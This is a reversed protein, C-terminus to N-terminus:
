SHSPGGQPTRRPLWGLLCEKRQEMHYRPRRDLFNLCIQVGQCDSSAIQRDEDKRPCGHFEQGFCLYPYQYTSRGKSDIQSNYNNQSRIYVRSVQLRSEWWTVGQSTEAAESSLIKRTRCSKFSNKILRKISSSFFLSRPHTFYGSTNISGTPWGMSTIIISVFVLWKLPPTLGSNQWVLFDLLINLPWSGSFLFCYGSWTPCRCLLFGWWWRSGCTSLTRIKLHWIQPIYRTRGWGRLFKPDRFSSSICSETASHCWAQLISTELHWWFHDLLIAFTTFAFFRHQLQQFGTPITLVPKRSPSKWVINSVCFQAISTGIENHIYWPQKASAVQIFGFKIRLKKKCSVNMWSTSNSRSSSSALSRKISPSYKLSCFIIADNPHVCGRTRM